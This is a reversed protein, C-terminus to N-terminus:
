YHGQASLGLKQRIEPDELPLRHSFGKIKRQERIVPQKMTEELVPIQGGLHRPNDRNFIRFDTNNWIVKNRNEFNNARYHQFSSDM